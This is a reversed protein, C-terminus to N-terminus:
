PSNGLIFMVGSAFALGFQGLICLDNGIAGILRGKAGSRVYGVSYFIRFIITALGICAAPIPFYVGSIFLWVFCTPAFEIYNYHVRQANNFEVWEKYSLKQAYFGNGM